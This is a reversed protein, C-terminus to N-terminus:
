KRHAILLGVDHPQNPDINFAHTTQLAAALLHNDKRSHWEGRIWGVKAQAKDLNLKPILPYEV